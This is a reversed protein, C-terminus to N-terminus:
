ASLLAIVGLLVGEASILARYFSPPTAKRFDHRQAHRAAQEIAAQCLARSRAQERPDEALEIIGFLEDGLRPMKRRLLQALQDLRRFRWVWRHLFLPVSLCGTVVALFIVARLWQPTDLFRDLVFVCVLAVLLGVQGVAHEDRVDLLSLAAAAIAEVLKITWVRRRYDHLQAQLAEPVQLQQQWQIRNM